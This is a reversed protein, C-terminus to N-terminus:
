CKSKQGRKGHMRTIKRLIYRFWPSQVNEGFGLVDMSRKIIENVLGKLGRVIEREIIKFVAM